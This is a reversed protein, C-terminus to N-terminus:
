HNNPLSYLIRQFFFVSLYGQQHCVFVISKVAMQVFPDKIKCMCVFFFFDLFFRVYILMEGSHWENDPPENLKKKVKYADDDNDDDNYIIYRHICIDRNWKADHVSIEFVLAFTIFCFPYKWNCKHFQQFKLYSKTQHENTWFFEVTSISPYVLQHCQLEFRM